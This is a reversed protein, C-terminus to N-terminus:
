EPKYLDRINKDIKVQNKYYEYAAVSSPAVPKGQSQVYGTVSEMIWLLAQDLDTFAAKRVGDMIMLKKRCPEIFDAVYVIKELVSMNPRGVTHFRIANLIDEDEIEYDDRAVIAGCKAHLLSHNDLEEQLPPFGSKEMIKIKDDDDMCKACDHLLGAVRAKEVDEGYLFAMCASTYEVGLSHEFRSQDLEKELQKRLKIIDKNNM